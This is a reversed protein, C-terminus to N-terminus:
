RYYNNPKTKFSMEKLFDYLLVAEGSKKNDSNPGSISELFDDKLVESFIHKGNCRQFLEIGWFIMQINAVLLLIIDKIKKNKWRHDTKLM